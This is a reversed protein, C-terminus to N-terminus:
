QMRGITKLRWVTCSTYTIYTGQPYVQVRPRHLPRTNTHCHDAATRFRKCSMKSRFANTQACGTSGVVAVCAATGATNSIFGENSAIRQASSRRHSIWHGNHGAVVCWMSQRLVFGATTRLRNGSAFLEGCLTNNNIFIVVYTCNNLTLM